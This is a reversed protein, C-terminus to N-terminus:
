IMQAVARAALTSILAARYPASAHIDSLMDASSLHVAQAAAPAFSAQLAQELATARFACAQAGTVGVRVEDKFRAVFVGVLALKSAPHKFKMYVASEPKAFTVARIVEAPELATQYLGLFFDDAAIDRADTHIVAKLALAASPYCASPDSYAMSGGLTGQNRVMPDGIGAALAALAPIAERVQADDAVQAHRAMAGVRVTGGQVQIGQLESLGSLDVLAAPNSMRLKMAQVLSQGGALFSGGSAHAHDRAEKLTTPKQYHFAYM